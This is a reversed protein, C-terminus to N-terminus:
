LLNKFFIIKKLDSFIPRDFNLFKLSSSLPTLTTNNQSHCHLLDIANCESM